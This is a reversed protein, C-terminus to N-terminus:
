KVVRFHQYIPWVYNKTMVSIAIHRDLVGLAMAAALSTEFMEGTEIIEVPRNFCAHTVSSAFQKNYQSAFWRPRWLINWANNNSRDGDLNIPTDFADLLKGYKDSPREIFADAVLLTLSRKYQVRNNTLGVNVIGRQNRQPSMYRDTEDNRVRGTDSVSYTPFEEIQRWEVQM